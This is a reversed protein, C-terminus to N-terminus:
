PQLAEEDDGEGKFTDTEQYITDDYVDTEDDMVADEVPRFTGNDSDTHDLMEGVDSARKEYRYLDDKNDESWTPMDSETTPNSVFDDEGMYDFGYDHLNDMKREISLDEPGIDEVWSAKDRFANEDLDALDSDDEVEEWRPPHKKPDAM